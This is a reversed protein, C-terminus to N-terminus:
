QFEYKWREFYNMYFFLTIGEDSVSVLPLDNCDRTGGHSICKHFMQKGWYKAGAVIPLLESVMYRFASVSTGRSNRTTYKVSQYEPPVDMGGRKDNTDDFTECM